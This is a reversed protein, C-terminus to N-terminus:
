NETFIIILFWSLNPVACQQRWVSLDFFGRCIWTELDWQWVITLADYLDHREQQTLKIAKRQLIIKWTSITNLWSLHNARRKPFSSDIESKKREETKKDPHKSNIQQRWYWEHTDNSDRFNWSCIKQMRTATIAPLKIHLIHMLRMAM